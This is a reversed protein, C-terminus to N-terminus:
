QAAVPNTEARAISSIREFINSLYKAGTLTLHNNDYYLPHGRPDVIACKDTCISKAGDYWNFNDYEKDYRNLNELLTAVLSYHQQTPMGETIIKGSDLYDSYLKQPINFSYIPVPSIVIVQINHKAAEEIFVKLLEGTERGRSQHIIITQINQRRAEEIFNLRSLGDGIAKYGRIYHLSQNNKSLVELLAPKITDAHSDGFLLFRHSPNELLNLRCSQGERVRRDFSEECQFSGRDERANNITLATPSLKIKSLSIAPGNALGFLLVITFTGVVIQKANLCNRTKAEVFNHLVYSFIATAVTFAVLMQPSDIYLNNGQFPTYNLLVIIPFHVLYISYSYKGLEILARSILNNESGTSFGFGTVAGSLLVIFISPIFAFNTDLFNLTVILALLLILAVTGYTPNRVKESGFIIFAYYGAMFEWLRSPLMFFATKSDVISLGAAIFFSVIAFALFWKQSVRKAILLLPLVLYFQLEVGLSWFNLLPRFSISSFYVDNQWYGFNPLLAASWNGQAMLQEIENPLVLGICLAATLILVTFYAPLLRSTRRVFFSTIQEKTAIEGYLKAMLFGSVVFFIDVGFYGFEFGRIDLHYFIVLFVSIGRLKEIHPLKNNDNKM